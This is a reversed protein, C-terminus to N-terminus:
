SGNKPDDVVLVQYKIGDAGLSSALKELLGGINHEENYAPLVVYLTGRDHATAMSKMGAPASISTM